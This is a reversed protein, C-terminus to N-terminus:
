QLYLIVKAGLGFQGKKYLMLTSEQFIYNHEAVSSNNEVGDGMHRDINKEVRFIWRKIQERPIKSRSWLQATTAWTLEASNVIKVESLAIVKVKSGTIRRM